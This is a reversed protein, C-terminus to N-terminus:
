DNNAMGLSSFSFLYVHKDKRTNKDWLEFVLPTFNNTAPDFPANFMFVMEWVPNPNDDLATTKHTQQNNPPTFM